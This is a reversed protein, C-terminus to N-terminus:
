TWSFYNGYVDISKMKLEGVPFKVEGSQRMTSLIQFPFFWIWVYLIYMHIWLGSQSCKLLADSIRCMQVNKMKNWKKRDTRPVIALWNGFLIHIKDRDNQRFPAIVIEIIVNSRGYLRAGLFCDDACVALINKSESQADNFQCLRVKSTYANKVKSALMSMIENHAHLRRHFSKMCIIITM